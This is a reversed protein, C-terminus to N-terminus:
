SGNNLVKALALVALEGREGVLDIDALALLEQVLPVERV